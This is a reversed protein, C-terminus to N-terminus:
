HVISPYVEYYKLVPVPAHENHDIMRQIWGLFIEANDPQFRGESFISKGTKWLDNLERGLCLALHSVPPFKPTQGFTPLPGTMTIRINRIVDKARQTAYYQSSDEQPGWRTVQFSIAPGQSVDWSFDQCNWFPHDRQEPIRVTVTTTYGGKMKSKYFKKAIASLTQFVRCTLYDYLKPQEYLFNNGKIFIDKKPTDSTVPLGSFGNLRIPPSYLEEMYVLLPGWTGEFFNALYYNWQL